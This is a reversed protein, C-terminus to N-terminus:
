ETNANRLVQLMRSRADAHLSASEDVEIATGGDSVRGISRIVRLQQLYRLCWRCLILHTWMTAKESFSLRREFSESITPVVERCTRLRSLLRNRATIIKRRLM